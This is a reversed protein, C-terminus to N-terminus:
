NVFRVGSPVPPPPIAGEVPTYTVVSSERSENNSFDYATIFYYQVFAPSGIDLSTVPGLTALVSSTGSSRSCPLLTCQYVRYGALDRDTNATWNLAAPWATSSCLSLALAMMIVRNKRNNSSHRNIGTM